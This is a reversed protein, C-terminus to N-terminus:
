KTDPGIQRGLGGADFYARFRTIKEGDMELISVGDYEVQKGDTSTARTNWELAGRDDTAIHNRFTSRMDGFTDRYKQWFERAGAPGEFKEPSVVNGVEAGDAFLNSITELDRSEELKGLAEVFVKVLQQSM